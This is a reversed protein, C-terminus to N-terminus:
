RDHRWRKDLDVYWSKGQEMGVDKVRKWAGCSRCVVRDGDLQRVHRHCPPRRCSLRGASRARAARAARAERLLDRGLAEAESPDIRFLTRSLGGDITLTVADGDRGVDTWTIDKTRM